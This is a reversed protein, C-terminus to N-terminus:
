NEIVNLDPSQTPWKIVQVDSEDLWTQMNRAIHVPGNGHQFIFPIMGDVFINEASDLLNHDLIDIYDISKMIDGVIVLEGTRPLFCMEIRNFLCLM